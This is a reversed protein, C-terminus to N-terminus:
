RKLVYFTKEGTYFFFSYSSVKRRFISTEETNYKTVDARVDGEFLKYYFDSNSEISGIISGIYDPIDGLVGIAGSDSLEAVFRGSDIDSM